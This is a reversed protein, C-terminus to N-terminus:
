NEIKKEKKSFYLLPLLSISLYFMTRLSLCLNFTHISIDLIKNSDEDYYFRQTTIRFEKICIGKRKWLQLFPLNITGFIHSIVQKRM